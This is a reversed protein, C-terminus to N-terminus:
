ASGKLYAGRGHYRTATLSRRQEPAVGLSPPLLVPAGALAATYLRNRLNAQQRTTLHRFTELLAQLPLQSALVAQLQAHAHHRRKHLRQRLLHQQLFLQDVRAM